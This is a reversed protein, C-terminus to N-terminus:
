LFFWQKLGSNEWLGWLHPTPISLATKVGQSLSSMFGLSIHALGTHPWQWHEWFLYHQAASWSMSAGCSTAAFLSGTCPQLHFQGRETLLTQVEASGGTFSSARPEQAVWRQLDELEHQQPLHVSVAGSAPYFCFLLIKLWLRATRRDM